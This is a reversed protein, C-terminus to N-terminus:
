CHGQLIKPQYVILCLRNSRFDATMQITKHTIQVDPDAYDFLGSELSQVSFILELLHVIIFITEKLM